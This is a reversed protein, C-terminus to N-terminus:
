KMSRMGIADMLNSVLNIHPRVTKSARADMTHALDMDYSRGVEILHAIHM